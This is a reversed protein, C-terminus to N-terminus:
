CQWAPMDKGSMGCPLLFHWGDCGELERKSFQLNNCLPHTAEATPNVRTNRCLCLSQMPHPTPHESNPTGEWFWASNDTLPPQSTLGRAQTVAKAEAVGEVAGAKNWLTQGEEQGREHVQEGNRGSFM